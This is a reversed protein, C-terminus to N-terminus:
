AARRAAGAVALVLEGALLAARRAIHRLEVRQVNEKTL